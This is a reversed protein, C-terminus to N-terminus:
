LGGDVRHEIPALPPLELVVRWKGDERVCKVRDISGSDSSVSVEAWDGDIHQEFRRPKHHVSFRSPPLMEEPAIERGAVDSARKAREALNRRADSWLLDYAARAAKRDGHVRQMRVIFEAVLRDPESDGGEEECGGLLLSGAGFLVARRSAM